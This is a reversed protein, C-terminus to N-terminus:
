KRGTRDCKDTTNVRPMGANDLLLDLMAAEYSGISQYEKKATKLHASGGAGEHIHIQTNGLPRITMRGGSDGSNGYGYLTSASLSELDGVVFYTTQREQTRQTQIPQYMEMMNELQM